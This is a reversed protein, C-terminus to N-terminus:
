LYAPLYHLRLSRRRSAVDAIVCPAAHHTSHAWGHTDPARRAATMHM